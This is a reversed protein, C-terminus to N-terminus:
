TSNAGKKVRSIAVGITYDTSEYGHVGIYYTGVKLDSGSVELTSYISWMLDNDEGIDTVRPYQITNSMLISADGQIVNLM